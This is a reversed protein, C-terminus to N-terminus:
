ASVRETGTWTFGDRGVGVGYRLAKGGGLVLYLYTHPTDIIITGPAENTTYDVIQRRFQPPLEKAPGQEPQEDPPLGAVSQGSAPPAAVAAPPSRLSGTVDAAPPAGYVAAPPRQISQGDLSPLPQPALYAQDDEEEGPIPRVYRPDYPVGNVDRYVPQPAAYSPPPPYYGAPPPPYYQAAASGVSGGLALAAVCLNLNLRLVFGRRCLKPKTTRAVNPPFM